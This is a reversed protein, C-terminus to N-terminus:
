VMGNMRTCFVSVRWPGMRRTKLSALTVTAVAAFSCTIGPKSNSVASCSRSRAASSARRARSSTYGHLLLVGERCREFRPAMILHVLRVDPNRRDHRDNGHDGNEEHVPQLSDHLQNDGHLVAVDIHVRQQGNDGNHQSEDHHDAQEDPKVGQRPLVHRVHEVLPFEAVVRSDDCLPTHVHRVGAHLRRVM